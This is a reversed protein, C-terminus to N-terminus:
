SKNRLSQIIQSYNSKDESFIASGAVLIDAGAEIARIASEGEWTNKNLAGMELADTIILGTYNWKNRLEKLSLEM